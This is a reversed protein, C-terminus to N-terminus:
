YGICSSPPRRVRSSKDLLTLKAGRRILLIVCDVRNLYAGHHLPTWRGSDLVNCDAGNQLFLDCAAVHGEMVAIHIASLNAADECQYNINIGRAIQSLIAGLNNDRAADLLAMPSAPTREIYLHFEYKNKIFISREEVTSKPTIKTGPPLSHEFVRNGTSNGIGQMLRRLEKDWSDLTTSRVKSIHTGLRRHVGSCDICILIGLNISAWDPDEADCDACLKNAADQQVLSALFDHPDDSRSSQQNKLRNPASNNLASAIANQVISVWHAMNAENEAQFVLTEHPSVIEFCFRREVERAPRITTLLLNM